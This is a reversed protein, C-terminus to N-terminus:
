KGRPLGDHIGTSQFETLRHPVDDGDDMCMGDRTRGSGCGPRELQEDDRGVVEGVEVVFVSRRADLQPLKGSM